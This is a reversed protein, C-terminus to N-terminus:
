ARDLGGPGGPRLDTAGRGHASPPVPCRGRASRRVGRSHIAQVAGAGVAPDLEGCL